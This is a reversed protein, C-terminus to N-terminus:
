SHHHTRRQLVSRVTVTSISEGIYGDGGTKVADSLAKACEARDSLAIRLIDARTLGNVTQIASKKPKLSM